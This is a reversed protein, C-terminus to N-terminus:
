KVREFYISNEEDFDLPRDGGDFGVGLRLKDKNEFQIIGLLSQTEGSELLTIVFDIEMPQTEKNLIFTMQAKEDNMMFEKGGMSEGNSEFTAYGEKDFIAYGIDGNDYGKWTGVINFDTNLLNFSMLPLIFVLLLLKKM